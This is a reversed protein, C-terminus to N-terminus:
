SLVSPPDNEFNVETRHLVYYHVIFRQRKQKEAASTVKWVSAIKTINEIPPYQM